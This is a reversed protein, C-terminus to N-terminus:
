LCAAPPHRPSGAAPALAAIERSIERIAQRRARYWSWRGARRSAVLGADKLVRLHFSLLPQPIGTAGTLECVCREDGRLLLLIRLRTPDAVVRLLRAFSSPATALSAAM